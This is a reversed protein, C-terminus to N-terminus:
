YIGLLVDSDYFFFFLIFFVDQIWRTMRLYRLELNGISENVGTGFKTVYRHVRTM